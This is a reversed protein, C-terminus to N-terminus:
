EWIFHELRLQKTRARAEEARPGAPKAMKEYIGIAARWDARQEFIRAADFGAKYFWVFERPPAADVAAADRATRDLVDYFTTLAEPIRTLQELAKAKKYLAQNRWEPPVGALQALEDFIVVAADIQKADKRGLALLNDGKDCIAAYRLDPPPQAALIIDDLAVAESEKGLRSQIIAQQQRAYLKLPGSRKAVEDFYGLARDVAGTNITQMASQGALFLATEAYASDPAERALTVFQTEANPFDPQRFYIQGLKMRVEPTLPSKPRARLFDLARQIVKADDRPQQADALFIAFYEAQDETIPSKPAENAAKIYRAAQKADDAALALEALALQAEPVRPYRPFDRLFIDLTGRARPDGQRAQLLGEELILQGRLESDPSRASIQRYADFFRDYNGQNLWALAADFQAVDRVRESREGARDLSAAALLFERQRYQVLGTRLEIEARQDETTASRAAAELARVAGAFDGTELFLDARLLQVSPLLPHAPATRVFAELSVLAKEPKRARMQLRALFYHALAARQAQPKAAWKKLESEEPNRQQAYVKDLRRFVLELWASEPHRWIFTELGRDATEYGTLAAHAEAAGLTAAVLLNEGVDSPANLVEDFRSLAPAFQQALLAIRGEINKQWHRDETRTARIGALVARAKEREGLEVHLNALRLQATVNGVGSRVLPDLVAIAKATEGLAQLSEAQGVKAAPPADAQAAIDSYIALAEPWRLASALIDARLLRAAGDAADGLEDLTRLAKDLHGTARQAEALLRTGEVRQAAPLNATALLIGLKHLAVQPISESLARRAEDLPSEAAWAGAVGLAWCGICCLARRNM